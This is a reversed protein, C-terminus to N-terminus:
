ILFGDFFAALEDTADLPLVHAVHQDPRVVVLAGQARDIGRLAYIDRAPDACFIKEADVLGLAGVRPRLLAPLTELAVDRFGQPLVARLDIQADADM